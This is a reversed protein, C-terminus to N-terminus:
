KGMKSLAYVAGAGIVLLPVNNMLTEPLTQKGRIKALQAEPALRATSQTNAVDVLQSFKNGVGLMLPNIIDRISNTQNVVGQEVVAALEVANKGTLGIDNINTSTQTSIKTSKDTKTTSQADSGGGM